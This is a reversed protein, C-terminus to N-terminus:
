KKKRMFLNKGFELAKAANADDQLGTFTMGPLSRLTEFAAAVAEKQLPKKFLKDIFQNALGAAFAATAEKQDLTLARTASTNTNEWLVAGTKVDILALNLTVKREMYYGVNVYNFNEVYGYMLGQVNLDPGLKKPDVIALQGGDVIGKSELFDNVEKLPRVEYVSNKMADFVLQQMIDPANLDNSENDFPLIAITRIDIPKPPEVKVCSSLLLAAILAKWKM